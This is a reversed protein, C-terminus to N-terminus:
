IPSSTEAWLKTSRERINKKEVQERLIEVHTERIDEFLDIVDQVEHMYHFSVRIARQKDMCPLLKYGKKELKEKMVKGKVNPFALTLIGTYDDENRHVPFVVDCGFKEKSHEPSLTEYEAPAVRKLYRSAFVEGYKEAFDVAIKTLKKMHEAVKQDLPKERAEGINGDIRFLDYKLKMARMALGMAAFYKVNEMSPEYTFKKDLPLKELYSKSLMLAGSSGLGLAKQGSLLYIDAGIQILPITHQTRGVDQCMDIMVPIDPHAEKLKRVLEKLQFLNGSGGSASCPADGFRTKSSIVIIETKETSAIKADMEIFLEEVTKPRQRNKNLYVAKVGAMEFPRTILEYEQGTIIAAGRQARGPLCQGVFDKMGHTASPYLCIRHGVAGYYTAIQDKADSMIKEFSRSKVMAEAVGLLYKREVGVSATNFNKRLEQKTCDLGVAEVLPFPYERVETFNLDDTIDPFDDLIMDMFIERFEKNDCKELTMDLNIDGSGLIRKLSDLLFKPGKDSLRVAGAGALLSLARNMLFRRMNAAEGRRFKKKGKTQEKIDIGGREKGMSIRDFIRREIEAPSLGAVDEGPFLIGFLERKQELTPKPFIDKVFEREFVRQMDGNGLIKGFDLLELELAKFQYQGDIDDSDVLDEIGLPALIEKVRALKAEMSLGVLADCYKAPIFNDIFRGIRVVIGDVQEIDKKSKYLDTLSQLAKRYNKRSHQHLDLIVAVITRPAFGEGLLNKVKSKDFLTTDLDAIPWPSNEPDEDLHEALIKYCDVEHEPDQLRKDKLVVKLVERSKAIAANGADETFAGSGFHVVGQAVYSFKTIFGLISTFFKYEKQEKELDSNESAECQAEVIKKVTRIDGGLVNFLFNVLGRYNDGFEGIVRTELDMLQHINEETLAECVPRKQAEVLNKLFGGVLSPKLDAHYSCLRRIAFVGKNFHHDKLNKQSLALEPCVDAIAGRVSATLKVELLNNRAKEPTDMSKTLAAIAANIAELERAVVNLDDGLAIQDKREQFLVGLSEIARAIIVKEGSPVEFKKALGLAM